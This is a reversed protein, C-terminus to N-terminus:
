ASKAAASASTTAPSSRARSARRAPAEQGVQERPRHQDAVHGADGHDHDGGLEALEGPDCTSASPTRGRSRSRRAAVEVLDCTGVSTSPAPSGRRSASRCRRRRRACRHGQDPHEAGGRGDREEVQLVVPDGHDAVDRGPKGRGDSGATPRSPTTAIRGAPARPRRRPRCRCCGSRGRTRARLPSSPRRWARAARGRRRWGRAGAQQLAEGDAAAAAAGGDAVGDAAAGLEAPRTVTRRVTSATSASRAAARPTGSPRREAGDDHVGRDPEDVDGLEAPQRPEAAALESSARAVM